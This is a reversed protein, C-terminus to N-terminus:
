ANRATQLRRATVRDRRLRVAARWGFVAGAIVCATVVVWTELSGDGGDPAVDFLREIWEPEVLTAIAAGSSALAVVMEAFLKTTDLM